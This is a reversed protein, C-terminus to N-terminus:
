VVNQPKGALFAAFNEVAIDMLKQRASDAAWAIHPTVIANKAGILPSGDVPPEQSLVDVAAGGLAGSELAEALATEDIVAGRSTNIVFAGRKMKAIRERNLLGRTEETLPCSLSLFDARAVVEDLEAYAFHEAELAGSRSPVALVKMGFALALKATAVGIRGFGIIGLTRGELLMPRGDWFCYDPSKAWRGARVAQAHHGIQHCLELMLALTYQAVAGTGYAPVNTVTVGHARCAATDVTNYGTALVGIYRLEPLQRLLAADIVTKNVLLADAGKARPLVLEDPTREHVVLEGFREFGAWSLDGPNLGHGDMVVIKM